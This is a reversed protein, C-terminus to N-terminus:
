TTMAELKSLRWWGNRIMNVTGSAATPTTRAQRSVCVGIEAITPIPAIMKPPITTLLAITSILATLWRRPAPMSTRSASMSAPLTRARGIAMVM